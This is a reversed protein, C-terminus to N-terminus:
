DLWEYDNDEAKRAIQEFTLRGNTQKVNKVSKGRQHRLDNEDLEFYNTLVAMGMDHEVALKYLLSSIRQEFQDLRGNITSSIAPSLFAAAKESELYGLYFDIAHVIFQSISSSGEERYRLQIAAKKETPLYLAFKENKAM